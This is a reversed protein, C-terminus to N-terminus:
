LLQFVGNPDYVQICSSESEGIYVNGISDVALGNVENLPKQTYFMGTQQYVGRSISLMFGFFGFFLMTVGILGSIVRVPMPIVSNKKKM